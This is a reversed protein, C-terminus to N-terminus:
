IIYSNLVAALNEQTMAPLNCATTGITVVDSIKSLRNWWRGAQKEGTKGEDIYVSDKICIM